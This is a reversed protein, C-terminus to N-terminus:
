QAESPTNGNGTFAERLDVTWTGRVVDYSPIIVAGPFVEMAQAALAEAGSETLGTFFQEPPLQRQASATGAAVLLLPISAFAIKKM